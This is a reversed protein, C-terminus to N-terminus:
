TAVQARARKTEALSALGSLDRLSEDITARVWEYWDELSHTSLQQDFRWAAAVAKPNVPITTQGHRQGGVFLTRPLRGRHIVTDRAEFLSCADPKAWAGQLTVTIGASPLTKALRTLVTKPSVELDKDSLIRFADPDVYSALAHTAYFLSEIAACANLIFSVLAKDQRYHDEHSANGLTPFSARYEEHYEHTARARYGLGTWGMGFIQSTPHPGEGLKNARAGVGDYLELPILPGLDVGLQKSTM